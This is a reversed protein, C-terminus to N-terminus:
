KAAAEDLKLSAVKITDGQREGTLTVRLHDNWNSAGRQSRTTAATIRRMAPVDAADQDRDFSSL